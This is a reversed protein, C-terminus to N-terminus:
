ICSTSHTPSPADLYILTSSELNALPIPELEPGDLTLGNRILTPVTSNAPPQLVATQGSDATGTMPVGQNANLFPTNFHQLM